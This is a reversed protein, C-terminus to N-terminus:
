SFDEQDILDAITDRNPENGVSLTTIIVNVSAINFPQMAITLNHPNSITMADIKGFPLMAETKLCVESFVAAM